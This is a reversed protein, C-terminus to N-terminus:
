ETKSKNDANEALLKEKEDQNVFKEKNADNLEYEDFKQNKDVRVCIKPFWGKTVKRLEL